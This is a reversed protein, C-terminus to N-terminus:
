KVKELYIVQLGETDHPILIIKNGREQYIYGISAIYLIKTSDGKQTLVFPFEILTLYLDNMMAISSKEFLVYTYPSVTPPIIKYLGQVIDTSVPNFVDRQANILVTSLCLLLMLMMKKM